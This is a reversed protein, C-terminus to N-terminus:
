SELIGGFGSIFIAIIIHYKASPSQGGRCKKQKMYMEVSIGSFFHQFDCKKKLILTISQM